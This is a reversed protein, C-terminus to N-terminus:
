EIESIVQRNEWYTEASLGGFFLFWLKAPIDMSESMSSSTQGLLLIKWRRVERVNGLGRPVRSLKWFRERCSKESRILSVAPSSSSVRLFFCDMKIELLDSFSAPGEADSDKLLSLEFSSHFCTIIIFLM